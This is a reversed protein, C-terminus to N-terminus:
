GVQLCHLFLHRPIDASRDTDSPYRVRCRNSGHVHLRPSFCIHANHRNLHECAKGHIACRLNPARMRVFAVANLELATKTASRSSFTTPNPQRPVCLASLKLAWPYSPSILEM